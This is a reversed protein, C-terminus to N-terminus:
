KKPATKLKGKLDKHSKEAENLLESIKKAHEKIVKENHAKKNLEDRIMKVHNEAFNQNKEIEKFYPTSISKNKETMSKELDVRSKKAKELSKSIGDVNKLFFEDKQSKSNVIDDAHKIALLHHGSLDLNKEVKNQSFSFSSVTVVLMAVFLSVIVKKM